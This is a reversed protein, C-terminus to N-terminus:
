RQDSLDPADRAQRALAEGDRLRVESASTGAPSPSSAMATQAGPTSSHRCAPGSTTVTAAAAIASILLGPFWNAGARRRVIHELQGLWALGIGLAIPTSRVLVGTMMGITGFATATLVANAYDGAAHRLGAATLWDATPIGRAHALVIATGGSFLEAALLVAAVCALLAM